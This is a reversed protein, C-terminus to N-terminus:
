PKQSLTKQIQQSTELFNLLKNATEVPFQDVFFHGGPISETVLNPYIRSWADQMSFLKGMIGNAGWLVFAPVAVQKNLDQEDM